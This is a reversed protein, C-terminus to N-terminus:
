QDAPAIERVHLEVAEAGDRGRLHFALDFPSALLEERESQRFAIARVAARGGSAFFALHEG